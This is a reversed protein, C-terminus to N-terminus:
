DADILIVAQGSAYDIGATVAIQHGFNRAFNVVKVRADAQALEHMIRLSKDRSGDNILVLEWTEGLEDMVRKIRGYLTQLNDQENHVPAIISIIVPMAQSIAM